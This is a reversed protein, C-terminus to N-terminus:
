FLVPLFDSIEKCLRKPRIPSADSDFLPKLEKRWQAVLVNVRATWHTDVTKPALFEILRQISVKADGHM